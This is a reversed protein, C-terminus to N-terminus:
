IYMCIYIIYLIMSCISYMYIYIYVYLISMCSYICIITKLLKYIHKNSLLARSSEIM